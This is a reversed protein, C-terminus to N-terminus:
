RIEKLALDIVIRNVELISKQGDLVVITGCRENDWDSVLQEYLKQEEAIKEDSLFFTRKHKPTRRLRRLREKLPVELYFVLHPKIAFDNTKRIKELPIGQMQQYVWGSLVYRDCVVVIGRKMSALINKVHIYRDAALLYMLVPSHVLRGSSYKDALQKFDRCYPEKTYHSKIRQGRLYASLM